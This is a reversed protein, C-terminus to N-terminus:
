GLIHENETQKTKNKVGNRFVTTNHQKRAGYKFLILQFSQLSRDAFISFIKKLFYSM